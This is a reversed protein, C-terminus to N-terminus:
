EWETIFLPQDKYRSGSTYLLITEFRYTTYGTRANITNGSIGNSYGKAKSLALTKSLLKIDQIISGDDANKIKFFFEYDNSMRDLEIYDSFDGNPIVISDIPASLSDIYYPAGSDYFSYFVLRISDPLDEINYYFQYKAASSISPDEEDISSGNYYCAEDNSSMQLFTVARNERLDVTTDVMTYYANSDTINTLLVRTTTNEKSYNFQFYSERLTNSITLTDNMAVSDITVGDQQLLFSVRFIDDENDGGYYYWSASIDHYSHSEVEIGETDCSTLFVLMILCGGGVGGLPSLLCACAQLLLGRWSGGLPLTLKASAKKLQLNKLQQKINNIEIKM